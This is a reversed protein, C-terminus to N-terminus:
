KVDARGTQHCVSSQLSGDKLFSSGTAFNSVRQVKNPNLHGTYSGTCTIEKGLGMKSFM